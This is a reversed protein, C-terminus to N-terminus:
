IPSVLSLIIVSVRGLANIDADSRILLEVIEPHGNWSALILPTNGDQLICFVFVVILVASTTSYLMVKVSSKLVATFSRPLPSRSFCVNM